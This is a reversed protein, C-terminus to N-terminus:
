FFGMLKFGAVVLVLGLAKQIWPSEFRIGFTTGVLAGALASGAYLPLMPPLSHLSALNGGLGAISNLLIFVSAIGSATKTNSWCAFLLVPSLFIGGGTGTLGSLLGIGAGILAAFLVPPDHAEQDAKIERPWLLRAAALWLIVGVLPKYFHGPLQIAGGLIAFPLAGILFPWLARWRFLGAKVFRGSVFTSVVVNMVLATPRMVTPPIGFIAMLALYASAGGHGVSTYLVAGLFMCVALLIDAATMVSLAM